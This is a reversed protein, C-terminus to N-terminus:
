LRSATGVYASMRDGYGHIAVILPYTHTSDCNDPLEVTYGLGTTYPASEVLVAAPSLAFCVVLAFLIRPTL